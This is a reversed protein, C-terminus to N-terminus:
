VIIKAASNPSTVARRMKKTNQKITYFRQEDSDWEKTINCYPMM